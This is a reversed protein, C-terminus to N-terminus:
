TYPFSLLLLRALSSLVPMKKTAVQSVEVEPAKPTLKFKVHKVSGM